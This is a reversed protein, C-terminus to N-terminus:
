KTGRKLLADMSKPMSTYGLVNKWHLKARRHRINARLRAYSSVDHEYNLLQVNDWLTLSRGASMILRVHGDQSVVVGIARRDVRCYRLMSGHRTGFGSLDIRKAQTGKRAFAAGGYVTGVHDGGGIKVGFGQMSLASDMLVVGDAAALSTM